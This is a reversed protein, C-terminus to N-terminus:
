KDAKKPVGALNVVEFLKNSIAYDNKKQLSSITVSSLSEDDILLSRTCVCRQRSTWVVDTNNPRRREFSTIHMSPVQRLLIILSVTPPSLKILDKLYM